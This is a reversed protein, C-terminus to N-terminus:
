PATVAWTGHSDWSFSSGNSSPTGRVIFGWRSAVGANDQDFPSSVVIPGNSFQGGEDLCLHGRAAGPATM